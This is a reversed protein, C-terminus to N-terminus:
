TFDTAHSRAHKYSASFRFIDYRDNIEADEYAKKTAEIYISCLPNHGRTTTLRLKTGRDMDDHGTMIRITMANTNFSIMPWIGAFHHKHEGHKHEGHKHEALEHHSFMAQLTRELHRGRGSFSM